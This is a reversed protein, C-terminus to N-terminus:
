TMMEKERYRKTRIVPRKWSHINGWTFQFFYFFPPAIVVTHTHTWKMQWNLTSIRTLKNTHTCIYSAALHPHHHIIGGEGDQTYTHALLLHFHRHALPPFSVLCPPPHETGFSFTYAFFFFPASNHTRSPSVSVLRFLSNKHQQKHEIKM